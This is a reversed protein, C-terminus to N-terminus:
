QFLKMGNVLGNILLYLCISIITFGFVYYVVRLYISTSQALHDELTGRKELREVWAPREHRVKELDVSGEFIALDMPFNERRIHGIFFHITFVHVMALIAEIRHVWLVVNLGWGPIYLTSVTPNYLILGTGGLICIGWFVAFYDFKEWYSWRDFRPPEIIGSLLSDKNNLYPWRNLLPLRTIRLLLADFRNWLGWRDFRLLSNIGLIWCTHQLAQGIDSLRPLMSDPGYVSALSRRWNIKTLIYLIHVFFLAIMFLGTWKHIDRAAHYGGVLSALYRGWETSSYLRALGTISQTVFFLTLLLHFLRQIPTFRKIRTM